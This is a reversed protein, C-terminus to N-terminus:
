ADPLTAQLLPLSPIARRLEIGTCRVKRMRDIRNPGTANLYADLESHVSQSPMVLSYVIQDNDIKVFVAIPRGTPPYELGRAASLEFRYNQSKVVVSKRSEADGLEGSALVQQFLLQRSHVAQVGFFSEFSARNINVQSWRNGSKPIETIFVSASDSVVKDPEASVVRAAEHKLRRESGSNNAVRALVDPDDLNRINAAQNQFFQSIQGLATAEDENQIRIATFAEWNSLLGGRTLNGSGVILSTHTVHQFWAFKPHFLSSTPNVLAEVQLHPHDASLQQLKRIAAVDTIADTGVILRFTRLKLLQAIEPDSFFATAGYTTTWAFVGGGSVAGRAELSLARLLTESQDSGHQFTFM